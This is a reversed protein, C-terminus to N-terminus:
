MMAPTEKAAIATISPANPACANFAFSGVSMSCTKSVPTLYWIYWESANINVPISESFIIDFETLYAPLRKM